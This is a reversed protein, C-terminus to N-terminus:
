SVARREAAAEAIAACTFIRQMVWWTPSIRTSSICFATTVAWFFLCTFGSIFNRTSSVLSVQVPTKKTPVGCASSSNVLWSCRFRRVRPM